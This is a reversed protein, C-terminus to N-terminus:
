RAVWPGPHHWTSAFERKEAVAELVPVAFGAVAAIVDAFTAPAGALRSNRVFANWQATKAPNQAFATAFCVPSVDVPTHRRGFTGTVAQTLVSGEFDYSRALLWVDFFDKMRSNLEGLSVMAELKEAVATERNYALLHPAPQDLIVPYIVAIPAPTIVDSFGIDIQMAVRANGLRGQFSARVGEYDADEAIRDTKVSAPDFVIGDDAVTQQCMEAMLGRIAELDNATRGLLDIDRTPRTVPTQWVLLTLAGKLVFREAYRSISLRYLFREIAYYVLLENFPRGGARALNLLRQHVSAAINTTGRKTM